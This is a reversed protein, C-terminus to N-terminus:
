RSECYSFFCHYMRFTLYSLQKVGCDCHIDSCRWFSGEASNIPFTYLLVAHIFGKRPTWFDPSLSYSLHRFFTKPIRRHRNRSWEAGVWMPYGVNIMTEINEQYSPLM